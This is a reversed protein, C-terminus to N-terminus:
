RRLWFKFSFSQNRVSRNIYKDLAQSSVMRYSREIFLSIQKDLREETKHSITIIYWSDQLQHVNWFRSRRTASGRSGSSSDRNSFRGNGPWVSANASLMETDAADQSENMRFRARKRLPRVVSANYRMAPSGSIERPADRISPPPSAVALECADLCERSHDGEEERMRSSSVELTCRYAQRGILRSPSFFSKTLDLPHMRSFRGRRFSLDIFRVWWFEWFKFLYILVINENKNKLKISM